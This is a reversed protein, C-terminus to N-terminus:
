AQQSGSMQGKVGSDWWTMLVLFYQRDTKRLTKMGTMLYWPLLIQDSSRVFSCISTCVFSFSLRSVYHRQWVTPRHLHIVYMWFYFVKDFWGSWVLGPWGFCFDEYIHFCSKGQQGVLVTLGSVSAWCQRWGCCFWWQIEVKSSRCHFKTLVSGTIVPV